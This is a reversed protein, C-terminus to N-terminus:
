IACAGSECGFGDDIGDSSHDNQNTYYMTKNGVMYSYLQDSLVEQVPVKGDAYRESDYYTNVSIAQDVFKQMIGALLLYGRNNPMEWATEYDLSGAEPAVQRYSGDKSSKVSVLMRPPEIGNTANATQSSIESPMVATLTANRMGHAMVEDRLSDWDFLLDTRFEGDLAKAYRDVPMRGDFLRTRDFGPCRLGLEKAQEMSASILFYSLAEFVQHTLENASGDSYKMGNKALMYAYNVVGVGIPRFKMTSNRAAPLVYDQYDLIANLSRVIVDAKPRFFARLVDARRHFPMDKMVPLGGLNVASLTCLAIEGDPDELRDLPKTPLGIELCLNSQRIPDMDSRFPGNENFRDVNQIYLRGTGLRENAIMSFLKASSISEKRTVAPDREYKLYLEAFREQDEFFADYLGPVQESSFITIPEGNLLRRYLFGNIQVGYDLHRARNEDVGRNNKLVLLRKIEWHWLPYFLTAAGSRMGGQSCSKTASQLYQVYPVIGTHSVEGNRVSAGLGRIRGVNVGIGARKAVYEAVASVGANISKISDDIEILVCSSFQKTLTRVGGLIPSPLSIEHRSAMRYFRVAFDRRDWANLFAQGALVMGIAMYMFQPTEYLRGTPRDKLLYKREMQSVAAFSLDFDKSHDIFRDLRAMEDSPWKDLLEPAYRKMDVMRGVHSHLTPPEMGGYAEKYIRRMRMRGSIVQFDPMSVSAMENSIKTIFDNIEAKSIGEYLYGRIRDKIALGYEDGFGDCAGDIREEIRSWDYDLRNGQGDTICELATRTM